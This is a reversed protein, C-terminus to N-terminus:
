MRLENCRPKLDIEPDYTFTFFLTTSGTTTLPNFISNEINGVQCPGDHRAIYFFNNIWERQWCIALVYDAINM